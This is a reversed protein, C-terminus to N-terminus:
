PMLGFVATLDAIWERLLIDGGSRPVTCLLQEPRLTTSLGYRPALRRASAGATEAKHAFYNRMAPLDSLVRTQYSLAAEVESSISAEVYQLTETLKGKNKFDPLERRKWARNTGRLHPHVAYVALTLAEDIESVPSAM